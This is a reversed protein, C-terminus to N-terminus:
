LSLAWALYWIILKEGWLMSIFVGLAISPGLPMYDKFTKKKLLINGLALIAGIIVSLFLMLLTLKFGLFLGSVACIEADGWGMGGFLIIIISIFGGGILAGLLYTKVPLAFYINIGLFLSGIIFGSLTTSFYVNTTNHDIVGVLILFSALFFFKICEITLGYKLYVAVFIIGTMLEILPYKISIKEGCYRCKGKLFIYSIIPILDYSKIRNSCNTCHSPPHAISEGRPIRYICVNLFSGISLGLLFVIFEIM